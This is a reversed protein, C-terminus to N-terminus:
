VVSKRDLPKHQLKKAPLKGPEVPSGQRCRLIDVDSEFGLVKEDDLLALAVENWDAGTLQALAFHQDMAQQAHGAWFKAPM